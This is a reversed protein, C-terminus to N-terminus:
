EGTPVAVDPKRVALGLSVAEDLNKSDSLFEVFDLPNNNFRQRVKAPLADFSAKARDFHHLSDRLDPFSSFDRYFSIDPMEAVDEFDVGNVDRFRRMIKNIDCEDKFAQRTKSPKTFFKQVRVRDIM